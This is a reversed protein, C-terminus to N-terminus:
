ELWAVYCIGSGGTGGTGATGANTTGGGGGGGGGTNAAASSGNSGVTAGGAGGNGGPGVGGGGGCGGNLTVNGAGDVGAAGLCGNSTQNTDVGFTVPTTAPNPGQNSSGGSLGPKSAVGPPAATMLSGFTSSGGVSGFVAGPAGGAGITITYSTNPVVSIRAVALGNGTGGIGGTYTSDATGAGGGQGGPAMFIWASTVGAPATWSSTTLFTLFTLRAM